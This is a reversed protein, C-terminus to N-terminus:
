TKAEFQLEVIFSSGEGAVGSSEAWMRGGHMEILRRSIPLGLGTGGVKRTTSADVQSFSEFIAELMNKPIGIGNDKFTILLKEEEPVQITNIYIGGRETFKVANSIINIFVQRLRVRDALVDLQDQSGPEIQLVLNKERALSSTIDLTEEMLEHLVFKEFVLNMKGAEIKAMDLVDNILSLLHKGNKEILHVDNVMIENLPGDLGLLLVEAFGLISNLPTRLEHSMNALFASKLHDLERLREVTAAQEAYLEANQLAVAVQSSLTTFIRVDERSFRNAMRDQVNFVGLLRDGVIMPIAIESRVEPLLQNQTYGPELRVDNIVTSQRSRGARAVATDSDSTIYDGKTLIQMGIEGSGAGVTYYNEKEQFTFVQVHYLGFSSKTLDVVSQLLEHPDLITSAATSVQAVTQLEQARKRTQDLLLRNNVVVAAQRSLSAYLREEQESFNHVQGWHITVVGVWRESISLPLVVAARAGAQIFLDRAPEDLLPDSIVEDVLLPHNPDKLIRWYAPHEQLRIPLSNPILRSGTEAGWVVALTMGEVLGREDLNVFYLHSDQAGSQRAPESVAELAEELSQATSLRASINYQTETESLAQERQEALRLGELHASLRDAIVGIFDRSGPKDVADAEVAVGGIVEERVRIPFVTGNLAASPDIRSVRTRDYQYGLDPRSTSALYAQWNQFTLRRIADETESRFHRSEELLHLNDVQQALRQTITGILDSEEPTLSNRGTVELQGNLRNSIQIPIQTSPDGSCPLDSIEGSEVMISSSPNQELWGGLLGPLRDRPFEVGTIPQGSQDSLRLLAGEAEDRAGQAQDLLRLTEIQQSLQQAVAHVFGADETTWDHDPAIEFLLRGIEEGSILIPVQEGSELEPFNASGAIEKVQSLDYVYGIQMKRHIGDLYDKWGSSDFPPHILGGNHDGSDVLVSSPSAQEQHPTSPPLNVPTTGPDAPEIANFLNKLRDHYRNKIM